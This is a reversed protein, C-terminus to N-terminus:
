ATATVSGRTTETGDIREVARLYLRLRLADRFPEDDGIARGAPTDAPDTVPAIAAERAAEDAAGRLETVAAATAGQM